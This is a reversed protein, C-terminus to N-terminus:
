GARHACLAAVLHHCHRHGRKRYGAGAGRRLGLTLSLPGTQKIRSAVNAKNLGFQTLIFAPTKDRLVARQLRFVVDEATLANGSAFKVGPRPEFSYTKGDASVAWKLALDPL